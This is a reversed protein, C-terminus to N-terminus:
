KNSVDKIKIFLRVLADEAQKRDPFRQIAGRAHESEWMIAWPNEENDIRSVDLEIVHIYTVNNLNLLIGLDTKIWM